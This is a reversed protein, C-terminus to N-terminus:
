CLGYHFFANRIIPTSTLFWLLLLRMIMGMGLSFYGFRRSAKAVFPSLAMLLAGPSLTIVATLQGTLYQWM